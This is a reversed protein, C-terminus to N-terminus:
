EEIVKLHAKVQLPLLPACAMLKAMDGDVVYLGAMTAQVPNQEGSNVQKVIEFDAKHVLKIFNTDHTNEGMGFRIGNKDFAHWYNLEPHDNLNYQFITPEISKLIPIVEPLENFAKTLKNLYAEWKSIDALESEIRTSTDIRDSCPCRKCIPLLKGTIMGRRLARFPESDLIEELSTDKVNGFSNVLCPCLYVDGSAGISPTLPPMLAIQCIPMEEELLTGRYYVEPHDGFFQSFFMVQIGNKIGEEKAAKIGNVLQEESYELSGKIYGGSKGEEGIWSKVIEQTSKIDEETIIQPFIFNVAGVGLDAGLKVVNALDDINENLIVCHIWVQLGADLLIKINEVTKEFARPAGRIVNDNEGSGNLSVQILVLDNLKALEKVIDENISIGNTGIIQKTGKKDFFRLLEMVDSMVFPEGGLHFITKVDTDKFAIQWQEMSLYPAGIDRMHQVHCMYCKLECKYTPFFCIDGVGGSLGNEGINQIIEIPTTKGLVMGERLTVQKKKM